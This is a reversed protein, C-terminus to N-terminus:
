ERTSPSPFLPKIQQMAKEWAVRQYRTHLLVSVVFTVVGLAIVIGISTEIFATVLMSVFVGLLVSNVVSVMGATTLWLQGRPLVMGLGEQMGRMDDHTSQLFYRAMQPAIETYYHRIRNIELAYRMDELATELVRVFTVLGIFFLTPFLLLGFLLFAQGMESMQGVFALAVLASSVSSLYLTTRGNAEFITSGRATQLASHETIMFTLIQQADAKVADGRATEPQNM